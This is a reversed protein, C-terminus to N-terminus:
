VHWNVDCPIYVCWQYNSARSHLISKLYTTPLNQPGQFQYIFLAAVPRNCKFKVNLHFVVAFCDFARVFLRVFPFCCTLHILSTQGHWIFSDRENSFCTQPAVNRCIYIEIDFLMKLTVYCIFYASQQDLILCEYVLWVIAQLNFSAVVLM